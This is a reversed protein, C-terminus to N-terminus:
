DREFSQISVNVYRHAQLEANAEVYLKYLNAFAANGAQQLQEATARNLINFFM